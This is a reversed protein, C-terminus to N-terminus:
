SDASRLKWRTLAAPSGESARSVRAIVGSQSARGAHFRKTMAGMRAAYLGAAQTAGIGLAHAARVPTLRCFERPVPLLASRAQLALSTIAAPRIASAPVSASAFALRTVRPSHRSSSQAQLMSQRRLLLARRCHSPELIFRRRYMRMTSKSATSPQATPSRPTRRVSGEPKACVSSSPGGVSFGAAVDGAIKGWRQARRLPRLRDCRARVIQSTRYSRVTRRCANTRIGMRGPAFNRRGSGLKGDM